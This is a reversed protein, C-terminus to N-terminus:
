LEKKATIFAVARQPLSSTFAPIILNISFGIFLMKSRDRKLASLMGRKLM